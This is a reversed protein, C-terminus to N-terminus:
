HVLGKLCPFINALHSLAVLKRSVLNQNNSGPAGACGLFTAIIAIAARPLNRLRPNLLGRYALTSSLKNLLILYFAKRWRAVPAGLRVEMARGFSHPEGQICSHCHPNLSRRQCLYECQAHMVWHSSNIIWVGCHGCRM